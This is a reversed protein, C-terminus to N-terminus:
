CSRDHCVVFQTVFYGAALAISVVKAIRLPLPERAPRFPPPMPRVKRVADYAIDTPAATWDLLVAFHDDAIDRISGPVTEGSTLTVLVHRGIGLNMVVRRADDPDPSGPSRYTSQAPPTAAQLTAVLDGCPAVAIIVAAVIGRITGVSEHTWRMARGGKRGVM